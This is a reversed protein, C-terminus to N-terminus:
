SYSSDNCNDGGTQRGTHSRQDHVDELSFLFSTLAKERTTSNVSQVREPSSTGPDEFESVASTVPAAVARRSRSEKLLSNLAADMGKLTSERDLWWDTSWVRVIEWGLGRLVQQRLKDRDRATASRHYTAGDCEVGALYIGPADPHIM